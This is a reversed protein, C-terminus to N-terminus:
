SQRRAEVDDGLVEAGTGNLAEAQAVVVDGGHVGGDDVQGDRPEAV